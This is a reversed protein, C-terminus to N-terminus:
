FIYGLFDVLGEKWEMDGLPKIMLCDDLRRHGVGLTQFENIIVWRCTNQVLQFQNNQYLGHQQAILLIFDIHHKKGLNELKELLTTAIKKHQFSKSVCLDAVGFIRAKRGSANILRHEIAMHGVLQKGEWALYRFTPIQKYFTRGQPYESFCLKLLKQIEDSLANDITFEELRTIKM